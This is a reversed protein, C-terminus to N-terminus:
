PSFFLCIRVQRCQEEAGRWPTTQKCCRLITGLVQQISLRQATDVGNVYVSVGALTHLHVTVHGSVFSAPNYTVTFIVGKKALVKTM